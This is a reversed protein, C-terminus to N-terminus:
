GNHHLYWAVDTWISQDELYQRVQPAKSLHRIVEQVECEIFGFKKWFEGADRSFLYFHRIGRDKLHSLLTEVMKTAVGKNRYGPLVAASRILAADASIEAGILSILYGSEMAAKLCICTTDIKITPKQNNKVLVQRIANLDGPTAITIQYEMNYLELHTNFM